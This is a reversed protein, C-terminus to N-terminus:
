KKLDYLISEKENLEFFTLSSDKSKVGKTRPVMYSVLGKRLHTELPTYYYFIKKPLNDDKKNSFLPKKFKKYRKDPNQSPQALAWCVTTKSKLRPPFRPKEILDQCVASLAYNRSIGQISKASSVPRAEARCVTTNSISITQNL